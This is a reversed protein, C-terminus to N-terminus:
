VNNVEGLNAKSNSVGTIPDSKIEKLKNDKVEYSHMNRDNFVQEIEDIM